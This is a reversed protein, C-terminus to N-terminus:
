IVKMCWVPVPVTGSQIPMSGINNRERGSLYFGDFHEGVIWANPEKVTVNAVV